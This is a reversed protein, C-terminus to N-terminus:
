YEQLRGSCQINTKQSLFSVLPLLFRFTSGSDNVNIDSVDKQFFSPYVTVENENIEIEVGLNRLCDITTMIDNSFENIIITTDTDAVSALILFRHAFSKSSIADVKGQLKDTKIKM